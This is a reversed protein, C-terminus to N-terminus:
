WARSAGRPVAPGPAPWGSRAAGSRCRAPRWTRCGPSCRSAASAGRAARTGPRRAPGSPSSRWPAADGSGSSRPRAATSRAAARPAPSRDRCGGAPATGAGGARRRPSGRRWARRRPRARRGSWPPGDTGVRRVPHPRPRARLGPRRAAQASRDIELLAPGLDGAQELDEVGGRDDGGAGAAQGRRDRELREAQQVGVEHDGPGRLEGLPQLALAGPPRASARSSRAKRSVTPRGGSPGSRSAARRNRRSEARGSDPARAPRLEGGRRPRSRGSPGPWCRRGRHRITSFAWSGPVILAAIPQVAAREQAPM